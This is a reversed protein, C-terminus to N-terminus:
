SIPLRSPLTITFTTGYGHESNFDITGDHLEIAQKAISLGLGTGQITDVNSGRQFPIFLKNQDDAPIGIGQDQVTFIIHDDDTQLTVHVPQEASLAPSYKIANSILNSTIKRLLMRDVYIYVSHSPATFHVHDRNQETTEEEIVTTIMERIDTRQINVRITNNELRGIMLVDDTLTTMHSVQEEIKHFHRQRWEDTMRAYRTRLLDTSSLITTLPTRFEHSATMVFRSRMASLERERELGEILTLEAEKRETIPTMHSLVHTILGNEDFMYPTLRVQVWDVKNAHNIIRYEIQETIFGNDSLVAIWADVIIQLDDPHTIQLLQSITAYETLDYGFFERHNLYEITQYEVEVVNIIDPANEILASLRQENARVAAEARKRETIDQAVGLFQTINGNDDYKFPTDQILLWCTHGDKHICRLEYSRITQGEPLRTTQQYATFMALDDPHTLSAMLEPMLQMDTLSYGLIKEFAGNIYTGTNKIRDFIYILIPATVTVSEMFRTHEVLENELMKRLTIDTVMGLTGDFNGNEDLLPSTAIRTWVEYGDRHQFCFDHNETIGQQRREFYYHATAQNEATMFSWLSEGVMETPTYGLMEAMRKNVYTTTVNPDLVWIGENATEVIDRYRQERAILDHTLQDLEIARDAGHEILARNLTILEDETRRLQQEIQHRETVDHAVAILLHPRGDEQRSLVRLLNHLWRYEGDANRIRFEIEHTHRSDLPTRMALGIRKIHARDQPHFLSEIVDASATRAQEATYGLVQQISENNFVVRRTSLDYIYFISPMTEVILQFFQENLNGPEFDIEALPTNLAPESTAEDLLMNVAEDLSLGLTDMYDQLRRQTTQNLTDIPM